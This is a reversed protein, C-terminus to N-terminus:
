ARLVEASLRRLKRRCVAEESRLAAEHGRLFEGLFRGGAGPNKHPRVSAQERTCRTARALAFDGARRLHERPRVIARADIRLTAWPWERTTRLTALARM